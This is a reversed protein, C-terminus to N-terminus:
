RADWPDHGKMQELLRQVDEDSMGKGAPEEHLRALVGYIRGDRVEVLVDPHMLHRNHAEVGNPTKVQFDESSVWGHLVLVFRSAEGADRGLAPRVDLVQFPRRLAFEADLREAEQPSVPEHPVAPAPGLLDDAAPSGANKLAAFRRCLKLEPSEPTQEEQSLYFAAAAVAVLAVAVLWWPSIPRRVEAAPKM